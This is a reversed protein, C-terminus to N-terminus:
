RGPRPRFFPCSAAAAPPRSGCSPRLGRAAPATRDTRGAPSKTRRRGPAGSGRLAPPPTGSPPHRGCPAPGPAPPGTPRAPATRTRDGPEGSPEDTRSLERASDAEDQDEAPKRKELAAGALIGIEYLLCLPAALLIQSLVDPPT